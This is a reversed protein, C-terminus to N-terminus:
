LLVDHPLMLLVVSRILKTLGLGLLVVGVGRTVPLVPHDRRRVAKGGTTEICMMKAQIVTTVRVSHLAPYRCTRAVRVTWGLTKGQKRLTVEDSLGRTGRRQRSRGIMIYTMPWQPCSLTSIWTM